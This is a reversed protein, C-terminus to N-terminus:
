REEFSVEGPELFNEIENIHKEKSDIPDHKPHSTVHKVMVSKYDLFLGVKELFVWADRTKWSVRVEM